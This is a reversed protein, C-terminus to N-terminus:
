FWGLAVFIKLDRIPQGTQSIPFFHNKLGSFMNKNLPSHPMATLETPM